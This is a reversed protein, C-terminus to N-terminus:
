VTEQENASSDQLAKERQKQLKEHYEMMKQTYEKRQEYQKVSNDMFGRIENYIMQNTSVNKKVVNETNKKGPQLFEKIVQLYNGNTAELKKRATAYDYDTQRVVMCTTEHKKKEILANKLEQGSLDKIYEGFNDNELHTFAEM